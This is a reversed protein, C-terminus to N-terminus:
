CARMSAFDAETRRPCFEILGFGSTPDGSLPQPDVGSNLPRVQCISRRALIGNNGCIVHDSSM